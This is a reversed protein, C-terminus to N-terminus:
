HESGRRRRQGYRGAPALAAPVPPQRTSGSQAPVTFIVLPIDPSFPLSKTVKRKKTDQQAIINVIILLACSHAILPLLIPSKIINAQLAQLKRNSRTDRGSTHGYQSSSCSSYASARSFISYRFRLSPCSLFGLGSLLVASHSGANGHQMPNHSRHLVTRIVPVLKGAKAAGRAGTGREQRAAHSANGAASVSRTTRGRPRWAAYRTALAAVRAAAETRIHLISVRNLLAYMAGLPCLVRCFPRFLRAAAYLVALLVFLKWVFLWGLAGRLRENSLAAPIGAELTGAPCLWQCFAPFSVGGSLTLATPVGIVLLLLVAYKVYRLAPPLRWKRLPLRYIMEQILGFPCLFGCVVRGGVLGILLIFGYVYLSLGFRVNAALAQLAGIPCSALAGPCSYCNLGPVCFQKGAGRYITGDAFGRFYGNQLL